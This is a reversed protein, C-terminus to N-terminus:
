PATGPRYEAWTSATESVRVAEVTVAAPLGLSAACWGYLYQALRESTPPVPLVENLDRHDLTEALFRRFPDLGAFDVVFGPEALETSALIVEAKYSHGHRRTCKHGAPLGSLCHAAEFGFM